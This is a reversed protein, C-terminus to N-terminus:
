RFYAKLAPYLTLFAQYRSTYLAELDRNPHVVEEHWRVSRECAEQFSTFVGTGVGALLAAGFAATERTQTRYIPRQFIDAQLQLWLPHNTAGGSAILQDLPAGLSTMIELGQRLSYVVGELVARVLHAQTHRLTLGSFVGAADPDMHPTREGALYPLFILGETGPPIQAAQDVLAQYTSGPFINDRLWRLSKGATLTAALLHWTDPVVHCFLHLRLKPDYVPQSSAAFLQGGTGITCSVLGPSIIGNGLAQCTQDSGGYVVPTGPNLKTQRAIEPLLSGAVQHSPFVPPLPPTLGEGWGREPHSLPLNSSSLCSLSDLIDQSWQRHFPDYLSTASADSPETGIEGTLRYRLYDKPLLLYATQTVTDPEYQNLWLWTALMFGTALPNGTWRGLNQIGISDHVQAVQEGSRQDAWIISPRISRGSSDLTVPGHMLGTLGIGAVEAPHVGLNGSSASALAQRLTNVAAQFWVEPDQEAWGPRPIDFAYEQTALSVLHGNSDILITKTSSTGLDIGILYPPPM